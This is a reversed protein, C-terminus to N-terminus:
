KGTQEVTQQVAPLAQEEPGLPQVGAKITATEPTKLGMEVEFKGLLDEAMSQEMAKEAHIEEIGQGSLDAAVRVTARNRDIKEQVVQELEGFDTTVDFNFTQTMRALEAEAHSMKLEAEYKQIKERV